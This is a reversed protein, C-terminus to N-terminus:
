IMSGIQDEDPLSALPSVGRERAEFLHRAFYAHVKPAVTRAAAYAQGNMGSNHRFDRLIAGPLDDMCLSIRITVSITITARAPTRPDPSPSCAGAPLLLGSSM